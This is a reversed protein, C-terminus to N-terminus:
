RKITHKQLEELVQAGGTPAGDDSEELQHVTLCRTFLLQASKESQNDFRNTFLLVRLSGLACLLDGLM